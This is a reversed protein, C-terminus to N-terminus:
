KCLLNFSSRTSAFMFCSCLLDCSCLLGQINQCAQFDISPVFGWFRPKCINTVYVPYEERMNPKSRAMPQTAFFPSWVGRHGLSGYWPADPYRITTQHGNSPRHILTSVNHIQQTLAMSWSKRWFLRSSTSSKCPCSLFTQDIRGTLCM